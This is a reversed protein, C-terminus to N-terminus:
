LDKLREISISEYAKWFTGETRKATKREPASAGKYEKAEEVAKLVVDRRGAIILGDQDTYGTESAPPLEAIRIKGAYGTKQIIQPINTKREDDGDFPELGAAKRGAGDADFFIIIEPAEMLHQKVVPGTLGYAGGAAFLNEIGIARCSLANMEGEVIIVPKGADITDPMPFTRGCKTNRKECARCYPNQPNAAVPKKECGKRKKCSKCYRTEYYHLKYGAGLRMVVGSHDWLSYGTNPNVLPVGIKKLNDNGFDKRVEALGPWYMLQEVIYKEVDSPYESIGYNTTAQARDDLFRKIMEPAAKNKRLYEELKKCVGADPQFKAEEKGRGEKNFQQEVPQVSVGGGFLKEVFEYQAKQRTIGELIGVADYIDGHIGCGHCKFSDDFIQLSPNADGHKHGGKNFCHTPSISLDVHYRKLLEKLRPKYKDFDIKM